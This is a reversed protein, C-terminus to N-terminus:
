GTLWHWIASIGRTVPVIMAEPLLEYQVDMWQARSEYRSAIMFHLWRWAALAYIGWACLGAYPRFERRMRGLAALGWGLLFTVIFLWLLYPTFWGIHSLGGVRLELPWLLPLAWGPTFLDGLLHFLGGFWFGGALWLYAPAGPRAGGRGLLRYFLGAALLSMLLTGLVSHSAARHAYWLGSFYHGRGLLLKTLIDADPMAAGLTASLGLARETVAAHRKVLPMAVRACVYGSFAHNITIM